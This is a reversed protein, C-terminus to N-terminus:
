FVAGSHIPLGVPEKGVKTDLEEIQLKVHKRGVLLTRAVCTIIQNETMAAAARHDHDRFECM